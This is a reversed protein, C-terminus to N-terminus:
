GCAVEGPVAEMGVASWWPVGWVGPRGASAGFGHEPGPQECLGGGTSGWAGGGGVASSRQPQVAQRDGGGSGPGRGQGGRASQGRGTRRAEM